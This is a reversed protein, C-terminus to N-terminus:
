PGYMKCSNHPILILLMHEANKFFLCVFCIGGLIMENYTPNLRTEYRIMPRFVVISNGKTAFQAKRMLWMTKGVCADCYMVDLRSKTSVPYIALSSMKIPKSNPESSAMQWMSPFFLLCNLNEQFINWSRKINYSEFM